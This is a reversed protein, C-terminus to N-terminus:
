CSNHMRIDCESGTDIIVQPRDYHRSSCPRTHVYTCLDHLIAMRICVWIRTGGGGVCVCVCVHILLMVRVYCTNVCM